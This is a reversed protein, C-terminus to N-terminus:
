RLWLFKQLSIISLGEEMMLLGLLLADCPDQLLVTCGELLWSSM